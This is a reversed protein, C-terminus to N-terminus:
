CAKFRALRTSTRGGFIMMRYNPHPHLHTFYGMAAARNEM